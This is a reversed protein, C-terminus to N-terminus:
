VSKFKHIDILHEKYNYQILKEHRPIMCAQLAKILVAM